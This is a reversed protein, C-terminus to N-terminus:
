RDKGLPKAQSTGSAVRKGLMREMARKLSLRTIPRAVTEGLSSGDDCFFAAGDKGGVVLMPMAKGSAFLNVEAAVDCPGLEQSNADLVAVVAGDQIAEELELEETASLIAVNLDRLANAVSRQFAEDEGVVMVRVNESVEGQDGSKGAYLNGLWNNSDGATEAVGRSGSAELEPAQARESEQVQRDSASLGELGSLVSRSVVSEAEPTPTPSEEVVPTPTATAVSTRVGTATPSPTVTGVDDDDDDDPTPTPQIGSAQTAFFYDERCAKNAGLSVFLFVLVSLYAFRSLLRRVFPNIAGASAPQRLVTEDRTPPHTTM